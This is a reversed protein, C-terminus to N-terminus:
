LWSRWRTPTIRIGISYERIFDDAADGLRQIPGEYKALYAAARAQDPATPLVEAVGEVILLDGGTRDANLNLSVKPNGGVNRLKQATPQSMVLFDAGDWHFWVPSSQPQGDARVTTIWVVEEGHLREEARTLNSVSEDLAVM